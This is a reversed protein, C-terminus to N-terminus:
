EPSIYALIGELNEPPALAPQERSLLTALGFDIIQVKLTSPNILINGPHLDKHIVQAHHIVSLAEALQNAIVLLTELPLKKDEFTTAYKWLDISQADEMVLCPQGAWDILDIVKVINSHDFDKLIEFSSRLRSYQSVDSREGGTRLIVPGQDSERVGRYVCSSPTVVLSETIKYGSPIRM